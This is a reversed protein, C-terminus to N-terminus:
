GDGRRRRRTTRWAPAPKGGSGVSDPVSVLEMELEQSKGFKLNTEEKKAEQAKGGHTGVFLVLGACFIKWRRM